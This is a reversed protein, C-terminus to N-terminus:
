KHLMDLFAQSSKRLQMGKPFIASITCTLAKLGLDVPVLQPKKKAVIYDPIYGIGLGHLTMMAIVEWSQVELFIDPRKKFKKEYETLFFQTEYCETPALIFNMSSLKKKSIGSAVYLGHTGTYVKRQEFASLDGEEPVLGFDIIGARLLQKIEMSKGLSFSVKVNPYCKQFAKLAEPVVALAFSYTAAFELNGLSAVEDSAFHMKLSNAQALIGKAKEFALMGEPTLRFKSPHHALLATGISKELKSIGQSIASQTVFNAAAARSFSGLKVADCFYKLYILNLSM